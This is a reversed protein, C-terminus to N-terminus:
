SRTKRHQALAETLWPGTPQTKGDSTKIQYPRGSLFSKSAIGKIFDEATKVRGGAQSLKDRMHDAAEKASYETGNRIFRVNSSEIYNILYAIEPNAAPDAAHLAAFTPTLLFLVILVLARM